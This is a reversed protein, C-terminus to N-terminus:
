NTSLQKVNQTPKQGVVVHILRERNMADEDEGVTDVLRNEVLNILLM